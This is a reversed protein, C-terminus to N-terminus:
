LFNKFKEVCQKLKIRGEGSYASVESCATFSGVVWLHGAKVLLKSDLVPDHM